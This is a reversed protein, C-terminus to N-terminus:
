SNENYFLKQRIYDSMTLGSKKSKEELQQRENKSLRLQLVENRM